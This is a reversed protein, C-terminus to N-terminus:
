TASIYSRTAGSAWFPFERGWRHQEPRFAPGHEPLEPYGRRLQATQKGPPIYRAPDAHFREPRPFLKWVDDLAADITDTGVLGDILVWGDDRWAAVEDDRALRGNM